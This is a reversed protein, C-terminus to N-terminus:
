EAQKGMGQKEEKSEKMKSRGKERERSDGGKEEWAEEGMQKKVVM